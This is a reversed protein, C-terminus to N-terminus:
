SKQVPSNDDRQKASPDSFPLITKMQILQKNHLSTNRLKYLAKHLITTM